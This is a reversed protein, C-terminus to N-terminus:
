STVAMPLGFCELRHPGSGSMLRNPLVGGGEGGM